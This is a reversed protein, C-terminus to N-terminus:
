IRYKLRGAFLRPSVSAKEGTKVCESATLRAAIGRCRYFQKFDAAFENSAASFETLFGSASVTDGYALETDTNLLIKGSAKYTTKLYSISDLEAEYRFKHQSPSHAPLSCIDASVTVYKDPFKNYLTNEPILGYRIAGTFFMLAAVLALMVRRRLILGAAGIATFAFLLFILLNLPSILPAAIIGFVYSACCVTILITM